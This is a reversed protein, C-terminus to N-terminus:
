GSAWTMFIVVERWSRIVRDEDKLCACSEAAMSM